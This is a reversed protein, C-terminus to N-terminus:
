RISRWDNSRTTHVFRKGFPSLRYRAGIGFHHPDLEILPYLDRPLSQKSATSGLGQRLDKETWSEGKDSKQQAFLLTERFKGKRSFQMANVLRDILAKRIGNRTRKVFVCREVAKLGLETLEIWHPTCRDSAAGTDRNIYQIYGTAVALKLSKNLMKEVQHTLTSWAFSSGQLAPVGCLLSTASRFLDTDIPDPTAIRYCSILVLMLMPDLGSQSESADSVRKPTWFYERKMADWLEKGLTNLYYCDYYRGKNYDWIFPHLRAITAHLRSATKLTIRMRREYHELNSRKLALHGLVARIKFEHPGSFQKVGSRIFGRRIVKLLDAPFERRADGPKLAIPNFAVKPGDEISVLTISERQTAAKVATGILESIANLYRDPMHKPAFDKGLVHAMLKYVLEDFTVPYIEGEDEPDEKKETQLAWVALEGGEVFPHQVPEVPFGHFISRM